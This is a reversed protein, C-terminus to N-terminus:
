RIEYSLKYINHPIKFSRTAALQQIHFGNAALLVFLFAAVAALKRLTVKVRIENIHHNTSQIRIKSLLKGSPLPAANTYFPQKRLPWLSIFVFVTYM